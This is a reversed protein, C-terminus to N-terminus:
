NSLSAIYFCHALRSHITSQTLFQTFCLMMILLRFCFWALTMSLMSRLLPNNLRQVICLIRFRFSLMSLGMTKLSRKFLYPYHVKFQLVLHLIFVVILAKVLREELQSHVVFEFNFLEENLNSTTILHNSFSM